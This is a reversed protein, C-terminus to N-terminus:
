LESQWWSSMWSKGRNFDQHALPVTQAVGGSSLQPVAAAGGCGALAIYSLCVGLTFCRLVFFVPM